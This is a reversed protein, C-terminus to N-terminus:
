KTDIESNTNDTSKRKRKPKPKETPNDETVEEIVEELADKYTFIGKSLDLIPTSILENSITILVERKSFGHKNLILKFIETLNNLLNDSIAHYFSGNVEILEEPRIINSYKDYFKLDKGKVLIGSNVIGIIIEDSSIEFDCDYTRYAENNDIIYHYKEIAFHNNNAVNCASSNVNGCPKIVIKNKISKDYSETPIIDIIKFNNSTTVVSYLNQIEKLELTEYYNELVRWSRLNVYETQRIDVTEQFTNFCALAYADFYPTIQQTYFGFEALKQKLYIVDEGEDNIKINRTLKM